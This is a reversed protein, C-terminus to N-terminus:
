KWTIRVMGTGSLEFQAPAKEKVPQYTTKIKQEIKVSSIHIGTPDLFKLEAKLAAIGGVHFTASKKGIRLNTIPYNIFIIADLEPLKFYQRPVMGFALGAGYVEQGVSGSKEWGDHIDELPIWLDKQIEGTKVDESIMDSPLMAPFYYALRGVAYKIFEPILIKLAPLIKIGTSVEIYHHLAAFVELEEYAATYPADNLSGPVDKEGGKGSSTEAKLVELTTMKYFVPWDYDFHKAVRIAYDISNLFLKKAVVDGRLALRSLNM